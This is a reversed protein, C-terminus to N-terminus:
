TMPSPDRLAEAIADRNREAFLMAMTETGVVNRRFGPEALLEPVGDRVSHFAPYITGFREQWSMAPEMYEVKAGRVVFQEVLEDEKELGIRTLKPRLQRELKGTVRAARGHDRDGFKLT